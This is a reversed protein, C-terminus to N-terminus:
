GFEVKAVTKERNGGAVGINIVIRCATGGPMGM